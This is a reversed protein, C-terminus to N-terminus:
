KGKRTGLTGAKIPLRSWLANPILRWLGVVINWRWDIVAVRRGKRLARVVRRAAYDVSMLLPYRTDPSLLPTRVWGPRIDTFRIKLRDIAALQSLATLYKQQYSKSASYSAMTGIGKTGAVSTVAAIHGRGGNRDRFYRFAADVMRTFGVVNTELTAEETVEELTDNAYGVGAVHFYCDMGGMRGILRELLAPADAATVDIREWEIMGPFEGALAKMAEENRGAVGVKVGDAALLRVAQRGIGSTGGAVIIRKM